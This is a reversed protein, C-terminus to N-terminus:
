FLMNKLEILAMPYNINNDNNQYWMHKVRTFCLGLFYIIFDQFFIILILLFINGATPSSSHVKQKTSCRRLGSPRLVQIDFNYKLVEIICSLDLTWLFQDM